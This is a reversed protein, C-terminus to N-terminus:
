RYVGRILYFAEAYEYGIQAGRLAALGEWVSPSFYRRHGEKQSEYKNILEIKKDVDGRSLPVFVNPESGGVRNFPYEGAMITCLSKAVRVVEQVVQLHDQNTDHMSHTVITFPDFKDIAVRVSDYLQDRQEQFDGDCASFDGLLFEVGLQHMNSKFEDAAQTSVEVDRIGLHSSFTLCMAKGERSVQSLLGGAFLEVDDTHAGIFLVRSLNM